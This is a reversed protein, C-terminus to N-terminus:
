LHQSFAARTGDFCLPKLPKISDGLTLRKHHSSSGKFTVLGCSDGRPPVAMKRLLLVEFSLLSNLAALGQEPTRPAYTVCAVKREGYLATCTAVYRGGSIAPSLPRLLPQNGEVNILQTHLHLTPDLRPGRAIDALVGAEHWYFDSTYTQKNPGTTQQDDAILRFGQAKLQRAIAVVESDNRKPNATPLTGLKQTVCGGLKQLTIQLAASKREAIQARAADLDIGDLLNTKRTTIPGDYRTPAITKREVPKEEIVPRVPRTTLGLDQRRKASIPSPADPLLSEVQTAAEVKAAKALPTVTEIEVVAPKNIPARHPMVYGPITAKAMAVHSYILSHGFATFEEHNCIQTATKGAALLELIVPRLATIQATKTQKMISVPQEIPDPRVALSLEVPLTDVATLKTKTKIRNRDTIKLLSAMSEIAHASRHAFADLQSIEQPGKQEAYLRTLEAKETPTWPVPKPRIPTPKVQSIDLAESTQECIPAGLIPTILQDTPSSTPETVKLPANATPQLERKLLKNKSSARKIQAAVEPFRKSLRLDSSRCKLANLKVGAFEPLALAATTGVGQRYRVEILPDLLHWPYPDNTKRAMMATCAEVVTAALLADDALMDDTSVLKAADPQTVNEVLPVPVFATEFGNGPASEVSPLMAETEFQANLPSLLALIATPEVELISAAAMIDGGQIALVHAAFRRQIGQLTTNSTVLYDFTASVMKTAMQEAAELRATTFMLNSFDPANM